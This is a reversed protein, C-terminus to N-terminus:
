ETSIGENIKVLQNKLGRVLSAIGYFYVKRADESDASSELFNELADMGCIVNNLEIYGHDPLVDKMVLDSNQM